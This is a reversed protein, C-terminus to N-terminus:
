GLVRTELISAVAPALRLADALAAAGHPEQRDGAWAPLFGVNGLGLGQEHSFYFKVVLGEIGTAPINLAEAAIADAQALLELWAPDDGCRPDAEKVLVAAKWRQLVDLLLADGDVSTNECASDTLLSAVAM